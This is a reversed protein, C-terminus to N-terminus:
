WWPTSPPLDKRLALLWLPLGQAVTCFGEHKTCGNASVCECISLPPQSLELLVEGLSGACGRLDLLGNGLTPSQGNGLGGPVTGPLGTSTVLQPLEDEGRRLFTQTAALLQSACVIAEESKM